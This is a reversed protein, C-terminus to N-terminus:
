ASSTYDFMNRALGLRRGWGEAAVCLIGERSQQDTLATHVYCFYFSAENTLAFISHLRM